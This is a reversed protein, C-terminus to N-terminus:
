LVDKNATMRIRIAAKEDEFLLQCTYIFTMNKAPVFRISISRFPAPSHLLTNNPRGALTNKIIPM